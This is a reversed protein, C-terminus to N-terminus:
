KRELPRNVEISNEIGKIEQELTRAQAEEEALERTERETTALCEEETIDVVEEDTARFYRDWQVFKKLQSGSFTGRLGAEDIDELTYVGKLSDM